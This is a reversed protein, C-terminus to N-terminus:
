RGLFRLIRLKWVSFPPLMFPWDFPLHKILISKYHTFAAFGAMGHYAGMGSAGVGGFPLKEAALHMVVTNIAMGGSSTEAAIKRWVARKSSFLYLALPKPKAALLAIVEEITEFTLVPLIPGFIEQQMVPSNWDVMDIVTPAIYREAPDNEGGCILRGGALMLTLRKFHFDSVIRGYDPSEQPVDGYFERVARRIELTLKDKVQAQVYVYDPAVCTQGANLFKGWVIRRAAAKLDAEATVICPSKGGLELTVPTLTAAAKSMVLKGMREGGTFFICDFKEALVIDWPAATAALANPEGTKEIIATLVKASAPATDSLRLLVSNGASLAAIAPELALLIPYNWTGGILAVGYAEPYIRASSGFNFIGAGVRRPRTRSRLTALTTRLMQSLLALECSIAEAECKHLDTDLASLIEKHSSELAQRLKKLVSRRQANERLGGSKQFARLGAVQDHLTMTKDTM